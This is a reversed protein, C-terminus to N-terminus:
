ARRRRSSVFALGALGALLASSPEPVVSLNDILMENDGGGAETSTWDFGFSTITLVPDLDVTQNRAFLNTGDNLVLDVATQYGHKSFALDLSYTGLEEVELFFSGGLAGNVYYSMSWEATPNVTPDVELPTFVVSFINAAGSYVSYAFTDRLAVYNADPDPDGVVFTSDTFSFDFKTTTRGLEEGYSHNLGVTTQDSLDLTGGIAIATTTGTGNNWAVTHSLFTTSSTSSWGDQGAIEVSPTSTLTNFDSRYVAANASAILALLLPSFKLLKM